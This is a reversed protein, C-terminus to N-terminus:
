ERLGNWWKENTILKGRAYSQREAVASRHVCTRTGTITPSSGEKEPATKLWQQEDFGQPGTFTCCLASHMQQQCFLCFKLLKVPKKKLYVQDEENTNTSNSVVLLFSCYLSSPFGHCFGWFFNLLYLYRLYLTHASKTKLVDCRCESSSEM